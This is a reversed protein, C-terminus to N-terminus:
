KPGRKKKIIRSLPKDIKNLKDFFWSRHKNIRLVTSKTDIDNLEARINTIEKKRSAKPQNTTTGGTRTPTHNPQKNSSNRNKKPLGTDSYVEKLPQRLQTEYIKSDQTNM